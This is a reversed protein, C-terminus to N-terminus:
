ATPLGVPSDESRYEWEDLNWELAVAAERRTSEATARVQAVVDGRERVLKRYIPPHGTEAVSTTM